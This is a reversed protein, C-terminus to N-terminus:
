VSSHPAGAYCIAGTVLFAYSGARVSGTVGQNSGTTVTRSGSWSGGTPGHDLNRAYVNGNRKLDVNWVSFATPAKVSFSTTFFVQSTGGVRAMTLSAQGCPGVITHRAARQLVQRAEATVPIPREHGNADVEIDFGHAAAVSRDYGVLKMEVKQQHVEEAAAPVALGLLALGVVAASLAKLGMKSM